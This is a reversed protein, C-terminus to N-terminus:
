CGRYGGRSGSWGRLARYRLDKGYITRARYRTKVTANRSLTGFGTARDLGRAAGGPVCSLGRLQRRGRCRCGAMWCSRTRETYCTATGRTCPAPAGWSGYRRVMEFRVEDRRVSCFDSDIDPPDKRGEVSPRWRSAPRQRPPRRPQRPVAGSLALMREKGGSRPVFVIDANYNITLVPDHAPERRM